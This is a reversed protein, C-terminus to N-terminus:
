NEAEQRENRVGIVERRIHRPQRALLIVDKTQITVFGIRQYFGELKANDAAIILLIEHEDAQAHRPPERHRQRQQGPREQDPHEDDEM